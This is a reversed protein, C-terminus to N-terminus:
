DEMEILKKIDLENLLRYEGENLSDDLILNGMQIRKLEIVENNIAKMMNKVQHFKGEIIQLHILRSDIKSVIAPKYIEDLYSIGNEIEMIDCENIDSALKVEYIKKVHSKPSLIKHATKGDNSIILLGTTDIDLRGVVFCKPPLIESIYDFVTHHMNDINASVCDKPKNLMIFVKEVYNVEEGGVVVIDYDEDIKYDDNSIIEDNVKVNKKRILNKVEKRTGYGSHALYKDLRM